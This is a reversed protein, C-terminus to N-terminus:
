FLLISLIPDKVVAAGFAVGLQAHAVFRGLIQSAQNLLFGVPHNENGTSINVELGTPKIFRDLIVSSSDILDRIACIGVILTTPAILHHPVLLFSHLIVIQTDVIALIIWVEIEHTPFEIKISSVLFCGVPVELGDQLFVRQYTVTAATM